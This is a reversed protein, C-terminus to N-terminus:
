GLTSEHLRLALEVAEAEVRELEALQAQEHAPVSGKVARALDVVLEALLAAATATAVAPGLEETAASQAAKTKAM